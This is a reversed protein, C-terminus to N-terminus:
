ANDDLYSNMKQCRGSGKKTRKNKWGDNSEDRMAAPSKGRPKIKERTPMSEYNNMANM